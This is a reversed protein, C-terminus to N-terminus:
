FNRFREPIGIPSRTFPAFIIPLRFIPHLPAETHVEFPLPFSL